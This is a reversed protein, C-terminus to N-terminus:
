GGFASYRKLGRRCAVRVAIFLAVVWAFEIALETALAAFGMSEGHLFVKAPFYALYQFPLMKVATGLGGPLLDLPFMHGSLLYSVMLIMYNLSSIELVWFAGLGVLSEFLFGIAFGLGLSVLFAATVPWAPWGDFFGRCLWFILAFPVAAITYYVIKHAVRAVFLFGLWNVPQLLYKKLNGERVDTAIGEALGPMSSFARGVTVLLYYAVMEPSTLGAIREQDSGAFVAGWLFITTIIPMFRMLTFLFFDTRYTFREILCIRFITWYKLFTAM